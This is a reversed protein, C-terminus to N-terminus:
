KIPPCYQMQVDKLRDLPITLPYGIALAQLIPDPSCTPIGRLARELPTLRQAVVAEQDFVVSGFALALSFAITRVM